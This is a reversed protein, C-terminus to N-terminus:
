RDRRTTLLQLHSDFDDRVAQWARELVEPTLVPIPALAERDTACAGLAITAILLLSARIM